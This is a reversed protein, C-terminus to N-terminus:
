LGAAEREVGAVLEHLFREIERREGSFLVASLDSAYAVAIQGNVVNFMAM